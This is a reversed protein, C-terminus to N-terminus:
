PSEELNTVPHPTMEAPQRATGSTKIIRESRERM